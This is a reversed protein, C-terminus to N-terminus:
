GPGCPDCGQLRQLLTMVKGANLATPVRELDIGLEVLAIAVAPRIGVAVAKAGLLRVMGVIRAMVRAIFSDVVTLGSVDILAGRARTRVVEHTLQNELNLVSADDLDGQMSVLLTQGVRIIPLPEASM